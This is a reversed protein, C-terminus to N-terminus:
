PPLTRHLRPSPLPTPLSHRLKQLLTLGSRLKLQHVRKPPRGTEGVVAPAWDKKCEQPAKASWVTARLQRAKSIVVGLERTAACLDQRNTRVTRGREVEIPTGLSQGENAQRIRVVPYRQAVLLFDVHKLQPAHREHCDNIRLAQNSKGV